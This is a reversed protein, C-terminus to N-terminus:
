SSRASLVFPLIHLGSVKVWPVGLTEEFPTTMECLKDEAISLVDPDIQSASPGTNSGLDPVVKDLNEIEKEIDGYFDEENSPELSEGIPKLSEVLIDYKTFVAV